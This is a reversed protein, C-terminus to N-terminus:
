CVRGYAAEHRSPALMRRLTPAELMCRDRLLAVMFRGMDEATTTVPGDGLLSSYAILNARESTGGRGGNASAIGQSSPDAGVKSSTMGARAFVRQSLSAELSCGDMRQLVLGLLAFNTNSYEYARGAAGTAPETALGQLATEVDVLLRRDRAADTEFQETFYDPM